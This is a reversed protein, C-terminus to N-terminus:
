ELREWIERMEKVTLQEPASARRRGLSAYTWAAGMLPSFIRSMKGKEGMCFTVIAQGRKRAYPILALVKLNDDWSRAFTAIKAVDAGQRMMRDLLKRLEGGSRTRQFDHSSLIMRTGNKNNILERLSSRETRIEVDVFAAGLDVAQRLIALRKKEDGRYRGGEAKRRNTVILPREGAKLLKELEANRLYDVRLEILDALPNGEAVARLADEM